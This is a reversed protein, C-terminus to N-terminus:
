AGVACRRTPGSAAWFTNRRSAGASQASLYQRDQHHPARSRFRGVPETRSALRSVRGGLPQQRGGRRRDLTLVYAAAIVPGVGPATRLLVIEPYSPPWSKSRSTWAASRRPETARDARVVAAIVTKLPPPFRRRSRRCSAIRDFLRCVAAPARSWRRARRQRDHHAGAGLCRARPDSGSGAPARRQSASDAVALQPDSHPSGPWSRRMTAIM